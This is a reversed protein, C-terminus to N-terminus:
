QINIAKETIGVGPAVDLLILSNGYFNAALARGSSTLAVQYYSKGSSTSSTEAFWSNDGLVKTALSFYAQGPWNILDRFHNVLVVSKGQITALEFDGLFHRDTQALENKFGYVREFSLVDKTLLSPSRLDGTIRVKIINNAHLSGGRNPDKSGRHSLYFVDADTPDPKTEWFNTRYYRISGNSDTAPMDLTGDTDALNFYIWRLEAMSAKADQEPWGDSAAKALDYVALQYTGRRSKNSRETRTREYYDPIENPAASEAGTDESYSKSDDLMMDALTQDGLDTPFALLLNRKSDLHMARRALPYSRVSKLTSNSLPTTLEGALLKGNSCAIAWYKYGGKAAANIPNCDDPQFTRALTPDKPNTLDFLMIQSSSEGSNSLTVILTSGAVTLSRGLRPLPVVTQKVGETDLVLLSGQNYDRPYDSNLAYFYRESSDVAVDIPNAIREGLAPFTEENKCSTLIQAALLLSLTSLFKLSPLPRCIMPSRM